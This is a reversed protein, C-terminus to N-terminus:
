LMENVGQEALFNINNTNVIVTIDYIKSLARLHSLLFVNVAYEVTAVFCIKKM